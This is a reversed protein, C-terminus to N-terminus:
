QAAINEELQLLNAMTKLIENGFQATQGLIPRGSTNKAHFIFKSLM